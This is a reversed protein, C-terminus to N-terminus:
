FHLGLAVLVAMLLLNAMSIPVLYKWELKLIQDIRLRPFTWRMWMMLFVVFFAKAFFWIFGPIYDMVANFGDLGPIHLPMWGGLFVTAAIGAVIFLNLYEALYFFGFHMGSYETHYGATLESEAEPLDFPGRNCEANGAILYVIFAIVAAIHGKFIFWGDAQGAVIESIQMTGTLVVMTMISMGVSLEYSIIQAGSRMAGILSFKNNSGWGALLIGVVGLSSAALVFFIGVNFDLIEAGMHYPLCAFTLFSALLVMYPALNYLFRDTKKPTFIEKTLMKLVDCIVQISGWKGVRNPGLRCQFFGCVKREMYILLIALIAYLLVICVGIVVCEIFIALKEPMVSLLM